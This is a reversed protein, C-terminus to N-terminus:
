TLNRLRDESKLLLGVFLRYKQTLKPPIFMLYCVVTYPHRKYAPSWSYRAHQLRFKVAIKDCCDHPIAPLTIAFKEQLLAKAELLPRICFHQQAIELVRPWALPIKQYFKAIDTLWILRQWVHHAAHLCLYVFNEEHALVPIPKHEIMVKVPPSVSKITLEPLYSM